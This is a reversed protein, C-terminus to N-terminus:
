TYNLEKARNQAAIMATEILQAFQQNQFVHLAAATTGGKSTVQDTLQQLTQPEQIAIAAAGSVTKLAFDTAIKEDLGMNMAAQVMAQTLQFVYAPGSGSLATFIDMDTERQVWTTIGIAHFLTQAIELQQESVYQNKILPTASQQISAAINPMARVVATEVPTHKAFWALKLGTAVSILLCGRPIAEHIEALVAKMQAPKVALIIVDADQIVDLNSPTTEIGQATVSQKLSPASARFRHNKMLLWGNVLSQAIKGFGILSINM